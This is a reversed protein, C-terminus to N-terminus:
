KDGRPRILNETGRLLEDFDGDASSWSVNVRALVGRAKEAQGVRMLFSAAYVPYLSIVGAEQLPNPESRVRDQCVELREVWQQAAVLDGFHLALWVSPLATFLPLDSGFCAIHKKHHLQAIRM